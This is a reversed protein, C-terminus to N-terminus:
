DVRPQCFYLVSPTAGERCEIVIKFMDDVVCMLWKRAIQGLPMLRGHAIWGFTVLQGYAIQGFSVTPATGTHGGSRGRLPTEM